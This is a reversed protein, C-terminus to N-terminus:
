KRNTDNAENRGSTMGEEMLSGKETKWKQQSKKKYKTQGELSNPSLFSTFLFLQEVVKFQFM